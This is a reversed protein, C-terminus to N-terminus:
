RGKRYGHFKMRLYSMLYVCVVAVICPIIFVQLLSGNSPREKYLLLGVVFPSYTDLVKKLEKLPPHLSTGQSLKFLFNLLVLLLSILLLTVTSLVTYSWNNTYEIGLLEKKLTHRGTVYGYINEAFDSRVNYKSTATLYFREFDKKFDFMTYNPNGRRNEEIHIAIEELEPYALYERFDESAEFAPWFEWDFLEQAERKAENASWSKRLTSAKMKILDPYYVKDVVIDKTTVDGEDIIEIWEKGSTIFEVLVFSIISRAEVRICPHNPKCELVSELMKISREKESLTRSPFIATEIELDTTRYSYKPSSSPVFEMAAGKINSKIIRVEYPKESYFEFYRRYPEDFREEVLSTYEKLFTKAFRVLQSESVSTDKLAYDLILHRECMLLATAFVIFSLIWYKLKRLHM